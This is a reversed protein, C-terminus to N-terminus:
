PQAVLPTCVLALCAGDDDDMQGLHGMSGTKPSVSYSEHILPLTLPHLYQTIVLQVLEGVEDM